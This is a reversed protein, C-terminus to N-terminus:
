DSSPSEGNLKQSWGHRTASLAAGAPHRSVRMELRRAQQRLCHLIRRQSRSPNPTFNKKASDSLSWGAQTTFMQQHGEPGEGVSGRVGETHQRSLLGGWAHSQRQHVRCGSGQARLGPGEAPSSATPRGSPARSATTTRASSQGGARTGCSAGCAHRGPPPQWDRERGREGGEM